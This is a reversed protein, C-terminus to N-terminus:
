ILYKVKVVCIKTPAQSSKIGKNSELVQMAKYILFKKICYKVLYGM